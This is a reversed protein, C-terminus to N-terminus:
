RRAEMYLGGFLGSVAEADISAIFRQTRHFAEASRDPFLPAPVVAATKGFGLHVAERQETLAEGCTDKIALL